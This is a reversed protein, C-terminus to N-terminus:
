PCKIELVQATHCKLCPRSNRGKLLRCRRRFNPPHPNVGLGIGPSGHCSICDSERHCGSCAKLNRRADASHQDRYGEPHLRLNVPRDEASMAVKTKQHCALCSSQTRHCKDCDMLGARAPGAHSLEWDAPHIRLSRIVGRHCEDCSRETHCTSCSKQRGRAVNPHGKLWGSSHDDGGHGGKPILRGTSTQTLLRGDEGAPHCAECRDQMLKDHCKECTESQPLLGSPTDENELVHCTRCSEPAELHLQHSFKLAATKYSRSKSVDFGGRHCQRCSASKGKSIDANQHCAACTSHGISQASAPRAQGPLDPHCQECSVHEHTLHSFNILKQRDPYVPHSTPLSGALCVAAVTLTLGAAWSFRM